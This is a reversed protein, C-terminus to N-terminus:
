RERGAACEPCRGGPPREANHHPMGCERCCEPPPEGVVKWRRLKFHERAEREAERSYDAASM